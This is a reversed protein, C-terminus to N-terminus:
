NTIHGCARLGKKKGVYHLPKLQIIPRFQGLPGLGAGEVLGRRSLFGEAVAM